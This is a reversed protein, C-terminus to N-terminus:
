IKSECLKTAACRDHTCHVIEFVSKVFSQKLRKVAFLGSFRFQFNSTRFEFLKLLCLFVKVNYYYNKSELLFPNQSKM